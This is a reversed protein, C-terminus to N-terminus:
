LKQTISKTTEEISKVVSSAILLSSNYQAMCLQMKILNTPDNPNTSSESIAAQLQAGAVNISDVFANAVALVTIKANAGFTPITTISPDYAM